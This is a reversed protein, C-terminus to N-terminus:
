EGEQGFVYCFAFQHAHLRLITTKDKATLSEWKSVEYIGSDHLFQGARKTASEIANERTPFLVEDPFDHFSWYYWDNDTKWFSFGVGILSEEFKKNVLNM